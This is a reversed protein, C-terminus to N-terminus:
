TVSFGSFAFAPSSTIKFVVDTILCFPCTTIWFPDFDLPRTVSTWRFAFPSAPELILTRTSVNFCPLTRVGIDALMTDTVLTAERTEVKFSLRNASEFTEDDDEALPPEVIESPLPFRFSSFPVVKRSETLSDEFV